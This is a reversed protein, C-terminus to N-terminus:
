YVARGRADDILCFANLFEVLSAANVVFVTHEKSEARRPGKSYDGADFPTVVSSLQKRYRVFPVPSFNASPLDGDALSMTKPDFTGVYLLATTVIISFYVRFDDNPDHIDREERALAETAAVVESAMNELTQRQNSDPGIRTNCYTAETAKPEVSLDHWGFTKFGGNTYRSVWAKSRMEGHDTGDSRMFLLAGDRFRKCEIALICRESFNQLM